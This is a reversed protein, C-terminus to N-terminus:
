CPHEIWDQSPYKNAKRLCGSLYRWEPHAMRHSTVRWSRMSSKTLLPSRRAQRSNSPSVVAFEASNPPQKFHHHVASVICALGGTDRSCVARSISEMGSTLDQLLSLLSLLSILWSPCLHMCTDIDRALQGAVWNFLAASLAWLSSVVPSFVATTLQSMLM